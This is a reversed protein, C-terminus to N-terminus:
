GEVTERLTPRAPPGPQVAFKILISTGRFWRFHIKILLDYIKDPPLTFVIWTGLSLFTWPSISGILGVIVLEQHQGDTWCGVQSLSQVTSVGNAHKDCRFAAVFAASITIFEAM